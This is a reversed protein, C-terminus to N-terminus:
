VSGASRCAGILSEDNAVTANDREASRPRRPYRGSCLDDVEASFAHNGAQHHHVLVEEVRGTRADVSVDGLAERSEIERAPHRRHAGASVHGAEIIDSDLA